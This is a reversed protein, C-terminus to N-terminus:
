LSKSCSKNSSIWKSIDNTGGGSQMTNRKLENTCDFHTSLWRKMTLECPYDEYELIDCTIKGSRVGDIIKRAYHKYPYLTNPVVRHTRKCNTCRLRKTNIWKSIGGPGKIIRHVKDYKKLEGMCYPCIYNNENVM